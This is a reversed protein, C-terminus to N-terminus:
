GVAHAEPQHKAGPADIDEPRPIDRLHPYIDTSGLSRKELLDRALGELDTRHAALIDGARRDAREIRQRVRAEVVPDRLLAEKDAGHWVPGKCGLGYVAEIDLAWQTAKALDSQAPGGAGASIDGLFLREAARGALGYTIEDEIDALLSETLCPLRTIQGGEDSIMMRTIQGLQLAAGVVAHGAEHLAIRWLRDMNEADSGINLHDCLMATTLLKRAHRADSRAARIAADIDAPSRGVIRHSLAKLEHDAIDERLHQRLLGLITGADPLPVEIKLDFRGARLMAPDMREPYNCAGVLIVGEQLAIDNVEGLFGNIVQTRYNSGNRDSDARSGVADIEDIFLICPAALRAEAFTKRMERLMDGLHGASQWEAFSGTVCAIGASNGMARALWTKGTGPPGYLLASRSLDQWSIQGQKWAKLDDVLRRATTLAPGFGTMDELRPGDATAPKTIALLRKVVTHLDPARLATLAQATDLRALVIDEPLARRLAPEDTLLDSLQGAMLHTILIDASIPPLCFIPIDAHQLHVPLRLGVPLLAIVPTIADMIDDLNRLFKVESSKGVAGDNLGPMALVWGGTPLCQRLVQSLLGLDEVPVDSVFTMAGCRKAAHLAEETSFAAALRVATLIQRAPVPAWPETIHQDGEERSDKFAEFLEALTKDAEELPTAKTPADSILHDRGAHHLRPNEIMRHALPLWVPQTQAPRNTPYTM